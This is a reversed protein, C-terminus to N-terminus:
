ESAVGGAPFNWLRYSQKETKSKMSKWYAVFQFIFLCRKCEM